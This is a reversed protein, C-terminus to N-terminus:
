PAPPARDPLGFYKVKTQSLDAGMEVLQKVVQDLADPPPKYHGSTNDVEILEGGVVIMDGACAAAEGALLSSHHVSHLKADFTGYIIGHGTMAYMFSGGREPRSNVEPDLLKGHPDCLKGGCVKVELAAREADDFYRIVHGMETSGTQEGVYKKSMEFTRYRTSLVDSDPKPGGCAPVALLLALGLFVARTKHTKM